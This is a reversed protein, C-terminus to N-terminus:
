AKNFVRDIRFQEVVHVVNNYGEGINWTLTSSGLIGWFGFHSDSIYFCGFNALILMAILNSKLSELVSV